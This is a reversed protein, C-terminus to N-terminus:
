DLSVGTTVPLWYGAWVGATIYVHRRGVIVAGQDTLTRSPHSWRGVRSGMVKGTQDYRYATYTGAQVTVRRAPTYRVPGPSPPGYPGARVIGILYAAPTESIWYGNFIGASIHLWMGPHNVLTQRESAPAQSPRLLTARKKDVITGTSSFRFAAHTGALFRVTGSIRFDPRDSEYTDAMRVFRVDGTLTYLQRLQFFHIVHYSSTHGCHKLCYRSLYGPARFSGMYHRVATLAGQALALASADGTLRHYDALGYIAWIHGNLIYDLPTEPYEEFWLYGAADVAVTWPAGDPLNKFSNLAWGAAQLYKEDATVEFLRVFVSLAQGQAMASYWPARHVEGANAFDFAYPFYWAGRATVARDILRQAQLRARNLYAADGTIRYSNLLDLAYQAQAVPHDYLRGSRSVMRVGSADHSGTDILSIVQTRYYPREVVSLSRLAYGDNAFTFTLPMVPPVAAAAAPTPTPTATPTPTMWGILAIVLVRAGITAAIKM